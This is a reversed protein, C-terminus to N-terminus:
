PSRTRSSASSASPAASRAHAGAGARHGDQHAAQLAGVSGAALGLRGNNLVEMAVKFGRASRASCTRTPCACTTSSSRPPRRAASASSTSTRAREERGHRARRHVRHDQAQQGGRARSTRAFVTFVDAFGGNTIWIKSGNLMYRATPRRSPARRSRPPTPARRDARDARVGGDVRGHCGPCTTPAEARRTGFLLIGKLGISQHAGLTVALSADVGAVEQM